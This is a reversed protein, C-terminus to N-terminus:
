FLMNEFKYHTRLFFTKVVVKGKKRTTPKTNDKFFTKVLNLARIIGFKGSYIELPPVLAFSICTPLSLRTLRDLQRCYFVYELIL